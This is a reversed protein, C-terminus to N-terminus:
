FIKNNDAEVTTSELGELLEDIQIEEEDHEASRLKRESCTVDIIDSGLEDLKNAKWKKLTGSEKLCNDRLNSKYVNVCNRMEKDGELEQMFIEKDVQIDANQASNMVDRVDVDLDKLKWKRRGDTEYLKRVLVIDPLSERKKGDLRLQMEADNFFTASSIDYGLVVDNEKLVYGLHTKVSFQQDCIGFDRVKAVICEALRSNARKQKASARICEVIPEVSLVVFRILHRSHMSAIFPDKSQSNWFKEGSIESREDSFPDVLHICKGVNKVLVLQAIDSMSKAIQKPLVILDDKCLPVIEVLYYDKYNGVNSKSDHSILKRTHSKRTPVHSELFSVFRMAQQKKQFYFDMGDKFTVINTCDGHANNKLIIQELYYFTRKHEVRQRVQVLGHWIGQAFSEECDECQRNRIIHDVVTAQQLIAGHIVEKQVTLKIKLRMSHPETWVWAADVLNLKKLAPIKKLCSAMLAKSEM